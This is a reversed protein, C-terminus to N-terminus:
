HDNSHIHGEECVTRITKSFTMSQRILQQESIKPDEELTVEMEDLMKLLLFVLVDSADDADRWEANKDIYLMLENLNYSPILSSVAAAKDGNMEIFFQYLLECLKLKSRDPNCKLYQKQMFFM